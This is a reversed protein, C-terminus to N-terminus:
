EAANLPTANAQIVIRELEGRATRLLECLRSHDHFLNELREIDRMASEIQDQSAPGPAGVSLSSQGGGYGFHAYLTRSQGPAAMAVYFGSGTDKTESPFYKRAIGRASTVLGFHGARSYEVEYARGAAPYCTMKLDRAVSRGEPAPNMPVQYAQTSNPAPDDARCNGWHKFVGNVACGVRPMTSPHMEEETCLGPHIVIGTNRNYCYQDQAHASGPFAAAL